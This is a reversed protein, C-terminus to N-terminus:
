VKKIATQIDRKAEEHLKKDLNEECLGNDLDGVGACKSCIWSAHESVGEGLKVRCVEANDVTCCVHLLKECGGCRFMGSGMFDILGCIKCKIEARIHMIDFAVAVKESGERKEPKWDMKPFPEPIFRRLNEKKEKVATGGIIETQGSIPKLNVGGVSEGSQLKQIAADHIDKEKM